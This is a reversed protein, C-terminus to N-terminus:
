FCCILEYLLRLLFYGLIDCKCFTTGPDASPNSVVDMWGYLRRIEELASDPIGCLFRASIDFYSIFAYVRTSFGTGLSDNDYFANGYFQSTTTSLYTLSSLARATNAIGSIIALGNGDQPHSLPSSPTDIYAEVGDDFNLTNIAESVVQARAAWRAADATFNQGSASIPSSTSIFTAISAANNLALVYLANYYTVAGTRPLFAYDGYSSSVGLGKTLLNTTPSTISPYFTDLVLLLNPYYTTIYTTNATYLYYDYSCTVWWLPYDLLALTYNNSSVTLYQFNSHKVNLHKTIHHIVPLSTPSSPPIPCFPSCNCALLLFGGM